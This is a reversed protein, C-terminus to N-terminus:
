EKKGSFGMIIHNIWTILPILVVDSHRRLAKAQVVYICMKRM